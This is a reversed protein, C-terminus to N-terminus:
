SLGEQIVRIRGALQADKSSLTLCGTHLSLLCADQFLPVLFVEAEEQLALLTQWSFDVGRIFIVYKEQLTAPPLLPEKKAAPTHGESASRDAAPACTEQSGTSQLVSRSVPRRNPPPLPRGQTNRAHRARVPTNRGRPEK